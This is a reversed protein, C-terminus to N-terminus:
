DSTKRKREWCWPGRFPMTAVGVSEAWERHSTGGEQRHYLAGRGINSDWRNERMGEEKETKRSREWDSQRQKEQDGEGM